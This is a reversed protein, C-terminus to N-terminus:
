KVVYKYAKMVKGVADNLQQLYNQETYDDNKDILICLQVKKSTGSAIMNKAEKVDKTFVIKKAAGESLGYICGDEAPLELLKNHKELEEHSARNGDIELSVRFRSNSSDPEKEAFISISEPSGLYKELQLEGWYYSRIRRRTGDLVNKHVSSIMGQKEAIEEVISVFEIEGNKCEAYLQAMGEALKTDCLKTPAKYKRALM